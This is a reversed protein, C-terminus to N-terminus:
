KLLEPHECLALVRMENPLRTVVETPVKWFSLSGRCPIFPTPMTGSLVFSFQGAMEWPSKPSGAINRSCDVIKTCAVIGGRPVEDGPLDYDLAELAVKLSTPASELFQVVEERHEPKGQSAHILLWGRKKTSWKRNEIPKLGRTVLWAWWPTLSLARWEVSM